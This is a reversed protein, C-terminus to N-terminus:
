YPKDRYPYHPRAVLRAYAVIFPKYGVAIALAPVSKGNVMKTTLAYSTGNGAGATWGNVNFWQLGNRNFITARGWNMTLDVIFHYKRFHQAYQSTQRLDAQYLKIGNIRHKGIRVKYLRHPNQGLQASGHYVWKGRIDVPTIVHGLRGYAPIAAQAQVPEAKFFGVGLVLGLAILLLMIKNRRM